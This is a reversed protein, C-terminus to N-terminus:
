IVFVTFLYYRLLMQNFYLWSELCGVLSSVFTTQLIQVLIFTGKGLSICKTM